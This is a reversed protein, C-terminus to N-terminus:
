IEESFTEVLADVIDQSIGRVPLVTKIKELINKRNSNYWVKGLQQVDTESNVAMFKKFFPQKAFDILANLEEDDFTNVLIESVIEETPEHDLDMFIEVWISPSIEPILTSYSRVLLGLMQDRFESLRLFELAKEKSM